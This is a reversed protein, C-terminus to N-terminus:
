KMLEKLTIRGPLLLKADFPKDQSEKLALVLNGKVPNAGILHSNTSGWFLTEWYRMLAEWTYNRPKSTRANGLCVSCDNYVNFMPYRSLKKKGLPSNGKFAYVSLKDGRVCYVIGPVNYIGDDLSLDKVFTMSRKQPKNYWIFTKYGPRDDVYLMASPMAGHPTEAFTASFTKVMGDIFKRSVPHGEALMGRKDVGRSELYYKHHSSEYAVIVAKPRFSDELTDTFEKM